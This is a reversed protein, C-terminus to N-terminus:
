KMTAMQYSLSKKRLKQVALAIADIAEEVDLNRTGHGLGIRLSSKADEASRGLALLVSSPATSGSACASGSSVALHKLALMLQGAELYHFCLNVNGPLRETPHGNLTVPDILLKLRKIIHDRQQTQRKREKDLDQLCIELAKAFGVIGPVNLTGSRLGEEQDGGHLLPKLRARATSRVYLAGVGKPGYIKHASFSLFDVNLETVNVPIKGVSQAADTHFLVGQHEHTVACLQRIDQITGIEHNAHMISVLVTNKKFAKVLDRPNVTGSSDVPLITIEHGQSKLWQCSALISSHETAQTIVHACQLGSAEVVGKLVENNSETTGSTFLISKEDSTGMMKAIKERAKKVAEEALWGYAHPSAPNGFDTAWYPQMAELVQPDLPTTAHHDLYLPRM